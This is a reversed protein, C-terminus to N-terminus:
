RQGVSSNQVFTSIVEVVHDASPSDPDSYAALAGSRGTLHNTRKHELLRQGVRLRVRPGPDLKLPAQPQPAFLHNFAM